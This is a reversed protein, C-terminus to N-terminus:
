IPIDWDGLVGLRKFDARQSDIQEHPLRAAPPASPRPMSSRGRAHRAEERGAARDAPRPLGLGARLARRLWRAHAVQRHHGEPDQQGRPGPPDRRQRVAARRAARLAAPRARRERIRQLHASRGASRAHAPERQALDAKMPFDTQPLNITHKYDTVRRTRLSSSCARAGARCRAADAAVLAELSEFSREDRLKAVFEVEIERGYLDGDFDFVIRRSCRSPAAWRRGRASARWGPWRRRAGAGHVRVAFMGQVRRADGSSRAPERDSVRAQPRAAQRARVRGRMSYPRGLWRQAGRSIARAGAGRARRQQQRARRRADGAGGGRGRFGLREGADACCEGRRRAAAASAFITASWSARPACRRPWCSAHVAAASLNVCGRRLAAPVAARGALRELLRWRERLNTLRAPPTARAAPVGAADARLDAGDGAASGRPAHRLLRAILAQHGLHM